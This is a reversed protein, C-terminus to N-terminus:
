ASPSRRSTEVPELESEYAALEWESASDPSVFYVLVMQRGDPGTFCQDTEGIAGIVPRGSNPGSLLSFREAAIAQTLRAKM